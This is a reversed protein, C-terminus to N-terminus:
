DFGDGLIHLMQSGGVKEDGQQAGFFDDVVKAVPLMMIRVLICRLLESRRHWAQVSSVAGFCAALHQMFWIIGEHKMVVVNFELHEGRVPCRRFASKVDGKFLSVKKHHKFGEKIMYGLQDLGDCSTRM